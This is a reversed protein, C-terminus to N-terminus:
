VEEQEEERGHVQGRRIASQGHAEALCSSRSRLGSASPARAPTIELLNTEPWEFKRALHPSPRPIPNAVRRRGEPRSIRNSNKFSILLPTVRDDRRCPTSM